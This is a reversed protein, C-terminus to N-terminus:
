ALTPVQRRRTPRSRSGSCPRTSPATRSGSSSSAAPTPGPRTPRGPTATSARSLTTPSARPGPPPRRRSRISASSSDCAIRISNPYGAAFIALGQDGALSFKVPVAAGAKMTNLAPPNDVPSFFGTFAWIVNVTAADTASNGYADTARVSVEVDGARQRRGGLVDRVPRADRVHRRQGPGLRLDAADGDPDTGTATLTVSRGEISRTRAARTRPRRRTRPDLGVIVPDHDSIRFQDPAYLTDILNATKFDTNYDLM